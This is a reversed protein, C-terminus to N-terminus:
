FHYIFGQHDYFSTEDLRCSDIRVVLYSMKCAHGASGPEGTRAQSVTRALIFEHVWGILGSHCLTSPTIWNLILVSFLIKM